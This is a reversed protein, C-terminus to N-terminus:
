ILRPTEDVSKRHSPSALFFNFTIMIGELQYNFRCAIWDLRRLSPRWDLLFSLFTLLSEIGTIMLYFVLHIFSYWVQYQFRLSYNWSQKEIWQWRWSVRFFHQQSPLWLLLLWSVCGVRLDGESQHVGTHVELHDLFGELKSWSLLGQLCISLLKLSNNLVVTMKSKSLFHFFVEDLGWTRM